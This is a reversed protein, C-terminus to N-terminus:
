ITKAIKNLESALNGRRNRWNMDSLLRGDSGVRGYVCYDDGDAHPLQKIIEFTGNNVRQEQGSIEFRTGISYKKM